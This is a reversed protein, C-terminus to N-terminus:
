MSREKKKRRNRESVSKRIIEKEWVYHFLVNVKKIEMDSIATLLHLDMVLNMIRLTWVFVFSAHERLCVYMAMHVHVM